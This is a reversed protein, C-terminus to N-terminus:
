KSAGFVNKGNLVIREYIGTLQLYSKVEKVDGEAEKLEKELSILIDNYKDRADYANYKGHVFMKAASLTAIAAGPFHAAVTLKEALADYQISSSILKLQTIKDAPVFLDVTVFMVHAHDNHLIVKDYVRIESYGNVDLWVGLKGIAAPKYGLQVIQNALKISLESEWNLNLDNDYSYVKESDRTKYYQQLENMGTDLSYKDSEDVIPSAIFPNESHLVTVKVPKEKNKYHCDYCLLRGCPRLKSKPNSCITCVM